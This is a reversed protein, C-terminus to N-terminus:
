AVATAAYSKRLDFEWVLADPARGTVRIRGGHIGHLHHAACLSVLNWEDDTGGQSKPVIHHAHVAARSCGPVQCLHRDRDRIRRQLTRARKLLHKYTWIFHAALAVLCEEAWMWRKAAARLARFAGKLLGAATTTLWVNFQGRACMQAEGRDHLQRRLEVCTLGQAKEIFGAVEEPAADRAILRAKEYSLRKEALAQRLLPNRVLGRELTARQAATREGMGLVEECYHGFSAFGLLQWGRISQFLLVLQGFLVDWRRREELHGKLERHLRWPDIEGSEEPAQAPPAKALDAWQAHVKELHEKLAELDDEPTFLLDDVHDDQPAQRASMYEQSWATVRECNSATPKELVMGAMALGLDLMERQKPALQTRLNVWREEDPDRPARVEAKLSRVTGGQAQFLWYLENGKAVTSIIEAKRFTIVGRRVADRILPLDRLRRALREMKAATSANLGLEERAYDGINSYGLDMARLGVNLAALGEGIAVELAGRGNAVHVLATHVGHAWQRAIAPDRVRPLRWGLRAVAAELEDLKVESETCSESVIRAYCVGRVNGRTSM